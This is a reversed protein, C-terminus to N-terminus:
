KKADSCSFKEVSCRGGTKRRPNPNHELSPNTLSIFMEDVSVGTILKKIYLWTASIHNILWLSILSLLIELCNPPDLSNCMHTCLPVSNNCRNREYTNKKKKLIGNIWEVMKPNTWLRSRHVVPTTRVRMCTCTYAVWLTLFICNSM